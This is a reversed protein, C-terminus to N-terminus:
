RVKANGWAADFSIACRKGATEVSYIPLQRETTSVATSAPFLVACFIGVVALATVVVTVAGRRLFIVTKGKEKEASIRQWLTGKM